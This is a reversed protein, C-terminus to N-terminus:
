RPTHTSQTPRDRDITNIPAVRKPQNKAVSIKKKQSEGWTNEPFDAPSPRFSYFSDTYICGMEM